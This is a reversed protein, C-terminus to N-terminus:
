RAAARVAVIGYSALGKRRSSPKGFGASPFDLDSSPFDLGQPLFVLVPPLFIWIIEKWSDLSKLPNRRGGFGM